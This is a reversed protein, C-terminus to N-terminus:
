PTYSPAGYACNITAALGVAEGDTIIIYLSQHTSILHNTLDFYDILSTYSHMSINLPTNPHIPLRVTPETTPPQWAWPKETQSSLYLSQHTSIPHNTLGFYDILSTYSHM